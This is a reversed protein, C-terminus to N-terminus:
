IRNIKRIKHHERQTNAVDSFVFYLLKYYIVNWGLNRDRYIEKNRRNVHICHMSSASIEMSEILHREKRICFKNQYKRFHKKYVNHLILNRNWHDYFQHNRYFHQSRQSIARHAQLNSIKTNCLISVKSIIKVVKVVCISLQKSQFLAIEYSNISVHRCAFHPNKFGVSLLM